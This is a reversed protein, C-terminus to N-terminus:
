RSRKMSISMGATLTEEGIVPLEVSFRARGMPSQSVSIKGQHYSVIRHAIALGLGTGGHAHKTTYYPTFLKDRADASVGPGNDDVHIAVGRGERTVETRVAVIGAETEGIADRANEILSLLLQSLTDKDGDVMPLAPALHKEINTSGAYLALQAKILDGM